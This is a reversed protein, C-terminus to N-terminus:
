LILSDRIETLYDKLAEEWPRLKQIGAKKLNVSTLVSYKPKKIIPSREALKVSILKAHIKCSKIIKEAFGRWSSSGSNTIHYVGSSAKKDILEKIKLALDLTYTLTGFQDIIVKIAEGKKAPEIVQAIFDSDQRRIGYLWSTRIIYYKGGIIKTLIEGALKSAGYINVPNPVSNESFSKKNGDFIYSTSIYINVASIAKAAAAVNHAGIANVKFSKKPDRECEDVKIFGATNIVIDPNILAIFKETAQKDAVDFDDHNSGIVKYSDDEKFIRILDFALLGTSGIILVLKYKM